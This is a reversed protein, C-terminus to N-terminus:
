LRIKRWHGCASDASKCAVCLYVCTKVEKSRLIDM